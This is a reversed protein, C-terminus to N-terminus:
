MKPSTRKKNRSETKRLSGAEKREQAERIVDEMYISPLTYIGMPFSGTVLAIQGRLIGYLIQLGNLHSLYQIEEEKADESFSFFGLIETKICYGCKEPKDMYLADVALRMMFLLPNKENRLVDYDIWPNSSKKENEPIANSWEVHMKSIFFHDLHFIKRIDQKKGM